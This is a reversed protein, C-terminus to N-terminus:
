PLHELVQQQSSTVQSLNSMWGAAENTAQASRLVNLRKM